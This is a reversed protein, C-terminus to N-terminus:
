HTVRSQFDDRSSKNAHYLVVDGNELEFTNGYADQVKSQFGEMEWQNQRKVGGIVKNMEPAHIYQLHPEDLKGDRISEIDFNVLIYGNKYRNQLFIQSKNDLKGNKRHYEQLSEGAKVIYPAAPLSYEGYWQQISANARQADVVQPMAVGQYEKKPGIMTRLQEPLLLLDYSGVPTKQLTVKDVYESVYQELSKQGRLWAPEYLYYKYKATDQLSTVPVNRLRENLIVYRSVKDDKSGIKVFPQSNTSYYLDVQERVEGDHSVFYFTPTIRIGDLKEFMNGKTKLDFKFHYGTKISVNKYGQFPHSGPRILVSYPSQNGRPDGDIKGMGVWYSVGTPEAAGKGQRFVNEWNYDAIDTIHFDYLRGIVEVSVQDLAMHNVLDLNADNQAPIDDPNGGPANEAINRFYVQYDGEDVWVPLFFTAEEQNVPVEIWTGKPVFTQFGSSEGMYVDFEFKVQKSRFYKAYDRNGYGPYNSENLHQGSTPIKVTFPRELILASRRENPKTKQNHAADDSVSSYNVVPTHVTVNNIRNISFEKGGSGGVNEPLLDYYITGTGPTKAKNLLSRSILLRDQYLARDGIPEPPPISGPTPGSRLVTVDDMIIESNFIVLDNKVDPDDTQSEAMGLLQSTDDPPSPREYGGVVTPPDFIITGSEKPMVHDEVRDSNDLLVDPPDYADPWLTVEGDPLAYNRMEARDIGYVELNKIQWYDYDRTFEFTYTKHETDYMDIDPQPVPNGEADTTDPQKEKWELEYEVDVKCKYQVKGQMNGFTHQYLYNLGWANTYLYESTPIAQEVDFRYPYNWLDDALIVGTAEPDMVSSQPAAVEGPPPLTWECDGEGGGCGPLTPDKSCEPVDEKWVSVVYTGQLDVTFNREFVKPDGNALVQEFKRDSPKNMSALYSKVISYNKGNYSLKEQGKNITYKIDEERKYEGVKETKFPRKPDDKKDTVYVHEVPFLASDYTAEIDFYEDLDDRHAWSEANKIGQLSYWPGSRKNGNGDISIMVASLFLKGGQKIDGMGNDLLGKTVKAEPVEFFTTVPKGPTPPNPNQGTQKVDKTGEFTVFKGSATPRCDEKNKGKWTCVEDTRITWGITKYRISSSAATSTIQFNLAGNKIEVVPAAQVLNVFINPLLLIFIFFILKPSKNRM